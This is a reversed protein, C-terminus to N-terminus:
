YIFMIFQKLILNMQNGIQWTSSEGSSEEETMGSTLQDHPIDTETGSLPLLVNMFFLPFILFMGLLFPAWVFHSVSQMLMGISAALFVFLCESFLQLNGDFSTEISLRTRELSNKTQNMQQFVGDYHQLRM